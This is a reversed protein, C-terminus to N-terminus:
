ARMTTSHAVMFCRVDNKINIKKRDTNEADNISVLGHGGVEGFVVIICIGVKVCIGVFVKAGEGVTMTLFIMFGVGVLVIVGM